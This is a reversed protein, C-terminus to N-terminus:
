KVSSRYLFYYCLYFTTKIWTGNAESPSFEDGANTLWSHVSVFDAAFSPISCKMIAANGVMVFEDGVRTEYSQAVVSITLM